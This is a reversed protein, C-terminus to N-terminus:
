TPLVKITKNAKAMLSLRRHTIQKNTQKDTQMYIQNDEDYRITVNV